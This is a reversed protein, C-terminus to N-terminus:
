SKYDDSRLQDFPSASSPKSLYPTIDSRQPCSGGNCEAFDKCELLIVQRLLERMSFVGHPIETLPVVEYVNPLYLEMDVPANCVKCPLTYVAKLSLHLVLEEGAIYAEGDAAVNGKFSFEPGKVDLFSSEYNESIKEVRGDRLQEVFIKFQDDKEM